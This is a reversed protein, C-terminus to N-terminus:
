QVSRVARAVCPSSAKAMVVAVNSMAANAPIAKTRLLFWGRFHVEVVQGQEGRAGQPDRQERDGQSDAHWAVVLSRHADIEIKM